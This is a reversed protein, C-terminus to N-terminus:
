LSHGCIHIAYGEYTRRVTAYIALSSTIRPDVGQMDLVIQLDSAIDAM